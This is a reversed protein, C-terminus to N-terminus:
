FLHPVLRSNETTFLKDFTFNNGLGQQKVTKVHRLLVETLDPSKSQSDTFTTLPLNHLKLSMTTATNSEDNSKATHFTVLQCDVPSNGAGMMPRFVPRMGKLSMFGPNKNIRQAKLM